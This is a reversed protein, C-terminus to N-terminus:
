ENDLSPLVDHVKDALRLLRRFGKSSDASGGYISDLDCEGELEYQNEMRLRYVYFFLM